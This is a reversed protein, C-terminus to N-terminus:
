GFPKAVGLDSKIEMVSKAVGGLGLGPDCRVLTNLPFVGPPVPTRLADAACLCAIPFAAFSAPALLKWNEDSAERSPSARRTLVGVPTPFFFFFLAATADRSPSVERTDSLPLTAVGPLPFM